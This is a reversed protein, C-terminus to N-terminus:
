ASVPCSGNECKAGDKCADAGCTSDKGWHMPCCIAVFNPDRQDSVAPATAFTEDSCKSSCDVKAGCVVAPVESVKAAFHAILADVYALEKVKNESSGYFNADVDARVSKLEDVTFNLSELLFHIYAVDKKNKPKVLPSVSYGAKEALTRNDASDEFLVVRARHEPNTLDIKADCQPVVWEIFPNKGTTEQADDEPLYACIPVSKFDYGAFGLELNERIYCAGISVDGKSEPGTYPFVSEYKGEPDDAQVGGHFSAIGWKKGLADIKRWAAVLVQPHKGNCKRNELVEEAPTGDDSFMGFGDEKNTHKITVTEDHDFVYVDFTTM